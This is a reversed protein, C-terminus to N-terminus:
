TVADDADAEDAEDAVPANPLHKPAPLGIGGHEFARPRHLKGPAGKAAALVKRGTAFFVTVKGPECVEVVGQGFTPHELREGPAFEESAKYTRVPLTLDAAVAPTPFREVVKEARPARPKATSSARRPTPTGAKKPNKYRHQGKCEKCIVQVIDEGVKAVVVHWVDGCKSCLAEIDAGVPPSM